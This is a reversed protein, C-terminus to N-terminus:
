LSKIDGWCGKNYILGDVNQMHRNKNICSLEIESERIAEGFENHKHKYHNQRIDYGHSIHTLENATLCKVCRYGAGGAQKYFDLDELGYSSKEEAYGNIESWMSKQFVCTGSLGRLKYPEGRWKDTRIYFERHPAPKISGFCPYNIKVDCDVIFILETDCNRVGVNHARGPDWYQQNPVRVISIRDDNIGDILPVASEESNWDVIIIQDIEKLAVWTPLSLSLYDLRNMFRTVIGITNGNIM